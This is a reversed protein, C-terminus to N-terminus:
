VAVRGYHEVMAALDPAPTSGRVLARAQATLEFVSGDSFFRSDSVFIVRAEPRRYQAYDAVHPGGDMDLNIVIVHAAADGLWDIAEDASHACGVVCGSRELHRQWVEVRATADDVLLVHLM